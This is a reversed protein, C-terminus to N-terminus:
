RRGRGPGGGRGRGRGGGKGAGGKGRGRKGGGGGQTKSAKFRVSRILKKSVSMVGTGAVGDASGSPTWLEGRGSRGRKGSPKALEASQKRSALGAEKALAAAAADQARQKKRLGMLQNYPRKQLKAPPLGLQQRERAAQDKKSLGELKAAGFREVSRAMSRM